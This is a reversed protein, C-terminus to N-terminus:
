CVVGFGEFGFGFGGEGEFDAGVEDEPAGTDGEEHIAAEPVAAGAVAGLGALVPLEPGGFDGAVLSAVAFDAADEAFVAPGDEADPFAGEGGAADEGGEGADM